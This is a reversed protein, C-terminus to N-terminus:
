VPHQRRPRQGDRASGALDLVVDDTFAYEVQRFALGIASINGDVFPHNRIIAATYAAALEIVDPNDAYAHLNRPRASASVLLGPERVGPAGGYLALLRRHLALADREDNWVLESV